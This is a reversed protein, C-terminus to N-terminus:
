LFSATNQSQPNPFLKQYPELLVSLVTM